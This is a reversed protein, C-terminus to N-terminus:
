FCDYLISENKNSKAIGIDQKIVKVSDEDIDLEKSMKIAKKLINVPIEFMGSGKSNLSEYFDIREEFFQLLKINDSLNFSPTDAYEIKIVRYASTSM